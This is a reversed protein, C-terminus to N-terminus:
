CREEVLNCIKNWDSGTWSIEIVNENTKWFPCKVHAEVASTAAVHDRSFVRCRGRRWGRPVGSRLTERVRRVVLSVLHLVGVHNTSLRWRHGAWWGIICHSVAVPGRGIAREGPLPGPGRLRHRPGAGALARPGGRAGLAALPGVGSVVSGLGRQMVPGVVCVGRLVPAQVVVRSWCPAGLM